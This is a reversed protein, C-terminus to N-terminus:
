KRKEISIAIPETVRLVVENGKRISGLQKISKDVPILRINRNPEKITLLRGHYDVAEVTGSLQFTEALLVARHAGKPAISVLRVETNGQRANAKRISVATSEVFEVLVAEGKRLQEFNKVSKDAKLTVARAQAGKLTVTRKKPDTAELMAKFELVNAVVVGQVSIEREAAPAMGGAQGIGGGISLALAVALLISKM